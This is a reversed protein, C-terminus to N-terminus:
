GSLEVNIVVIGNLSTTEERQVRASRHQHTEIKRTVQIDQKSYRTLAFPTSAPFNEVLM